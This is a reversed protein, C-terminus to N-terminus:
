TLLPGSIYDGIRKIQQKYTNDLAYNIRKRALEERNLIELNRISSTFLNPLAEDHGAETMEILESNAYLSIHSSVITKGTSLYELMKHTNEGFYDKNDPKYCLLLADMAHLENALQEPKMFGHLIVNSQNQLFHFWGAETEDSKNHETSGFLHFSISPNEVIIARFIDKNLFRIFLNGSYGVKINKTLKDGNASEWKKTAALAFNESLGHNIFFCNIGADMFKQRIVGSVTFLHHAGRKSFKIHGFNDVPFFIKVSANVFDTNDYLTYCGFDICVDFQPKIKRLYKKIVLLNIYKYLKTFHFRFAPPAPLKYQIIRLRSSSDPKQEQMTWGFEPRPSSLFWVDNNKALEM